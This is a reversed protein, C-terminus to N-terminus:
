IYDYEDEDCNMEMTSWPGKVAMIRVWLDAGHAIKLNATQCFLTSCAWVLM